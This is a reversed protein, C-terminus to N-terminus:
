FFFFNHHSCERPLISYGGLVTRVLSYQVITGKWKMAQQLGKYSIIYTRITGSGHMRKKKLFPYSTVYTRLLRHVSTLFHSIIKPIPIKFISLFYNELRKTMVIGFTKSKPCRYRVYSEPFERSPLYQKKTFCIFLLLLITHTM